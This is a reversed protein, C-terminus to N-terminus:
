TQWQRHIRDRYDLVARRSEMASQEQHARGQQSPHWYFLGLIADIRQFCVGNAALRLWFEYDGAVMYSEDFLGYQDHLARRWVPQPGLYCHQLLRLPDFDPWDLHGTSYPVEYSVEYAGGWVANETPTVYCDAYVAGISPNDDLANVLIELADTKHRDDANASTLYDGTALRIARNWSSYMPERLSTIVQLRAGNNLYDRLIYGENQKSGANVVIIELRNQAYLSQALLDDLCGRLFRESNYTSVIASVSSHNM